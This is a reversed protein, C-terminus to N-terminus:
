PFLHMNILFLLNIINLMINNCINNYYFIVIQNTNWSFTIRPAEFSKALRIHVNDSWLSRTLQCTMTHCSYTHNYCIVLNYPQCLVVISYHKIFPNISLVWLMITITIYLCMTIYMFIYIDIKIDTFYFFYPCSM